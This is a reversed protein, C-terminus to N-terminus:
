SNLAKEKGQLIKKVMDLNKALVELVFESIQDNNKIQSLGSSEILENM